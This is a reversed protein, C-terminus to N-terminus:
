SAPTGCQFYKKKSQDRQPTPADPAPVTCKVITIGYIIKRRANIYLKWFM